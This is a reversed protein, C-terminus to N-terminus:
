GNDSLPPSAKERRKKSTPESNSELKRLLDPFDSGGCTLSKFRGLPFVSVWNTNSDKNFSHIEKQEEPNSM